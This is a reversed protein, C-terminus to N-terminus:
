NQHGFMEEYPVEEPHHHHHHYHHRHPESDKTRSRNAADDFCDKTGDGTRLKRKEVVAPPVTKLDYAQGIYAMAEIFMSTLNIKWGLESTRYDWPFTHHYNHFGLCFFFFFFSSLSLIPQKSVATDIQYIPQFECAPMYTM